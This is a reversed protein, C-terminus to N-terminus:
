ISLQELHNLSRVSIGISFYAWFLEVTYHRLLSEGLNRLAMLSLEEPSIFLKTYM